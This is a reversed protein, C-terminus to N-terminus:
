IEDFQVSTPTVVFNIEIYELTYSNAEGLNNSVNRTCGDTRSDSKISLKYDIIGREKKIQSLIPRIIGDFEDKLTTDNPDFILKLAARSILNRMYLMLRVVNIRNMPTDGSYMTKNGWIKVGDESFTKLPNIRGNYVNDEDELKAFFHM